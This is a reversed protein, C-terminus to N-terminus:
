ISDASYLLKVLEFESPSVYLTRYEDPYFTFFKIMQNLVLMPPELTVTVMKGKNPDLVDIFYKFNTFVSGKAIVGPEGGYTRLLPSVTNLDLTKTIVIIEM